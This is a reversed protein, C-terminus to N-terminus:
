HSMTGPSKVECATTVKEGDSFEFTLPITAGVELPRKPEELMLHYNGPTFTLTGHAPVTVKDLMVMKSTSGNKQTQHLMAMGFANTQVGTLDIPRASMNMAKFYGGSPLKGPLPRIWCDSVMVVASEAAAGAPLVCAGLLTVLLSKGIFKMVYEQVDSQIIGVARSRTRM